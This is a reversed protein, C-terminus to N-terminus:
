WRQVHDCCTDKGVFTEGLANMKLRRVECDIQASPWLPKARRMLM